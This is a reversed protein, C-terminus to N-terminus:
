DATASLLLTPSLLMMTVVPSFVEWGAVSVDSAMMARSELREHGDGLGLREWGGLPRSRRRRGRRPTTEPGATPSNPTM